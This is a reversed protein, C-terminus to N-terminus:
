AKRVARRAEEYFGELEESDQEIAKVPLEDPYLETLTEPNSIVHGLLKALEADNGVPFHFGSVQPEVLEAMGGIDSVALPTRTALAELIILPSNEYWVSPVVLVDIERLAGSM